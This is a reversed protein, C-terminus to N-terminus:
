SEFVWTKITGKHFQFTTAGIRAVEKYFTEYLKDLSKKSKSLMRRQERDFKNSDFKIAVM